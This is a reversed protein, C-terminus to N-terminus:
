SIPSHVLIHVELNSAVSCGHGWDLESCFRPCSDVLSFRLIHSIQPLTQNIHSSFHFLMNNVIANVLPAYTKM